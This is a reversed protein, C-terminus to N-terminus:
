VCKQVEQHRGILMHKEYCELKMLEKTELEEVTGQDDQGNNPFLVLDRVSEDIVHLAFKM